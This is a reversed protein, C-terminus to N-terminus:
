VSDTTRAHCQLRLLTFYAMYFCVIICATKGDQASQTFPQAHHTLSQLDAMFATVSDEYIMAHSRHM